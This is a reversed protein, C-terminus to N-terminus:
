LNKEFEGLGCVLKNDKITGTATVVWRRPRTKFLATSADNIKGKLEIDMTGDNHVRRIRYKLPYSPGVERTGAHEGGLAECYQARAQRGPGFEVLLFYPTAAVEGPTVAERADMQAPATWQTWALAKRPSAANVNLSLAAATAAIALLAFFKKM